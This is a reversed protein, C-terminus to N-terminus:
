RSWANTRADALEVPDAWAGSQLASLERRRAAEAVVHQLAGAVTARKTTTGLADAAAALLSDDIDVLTKPM